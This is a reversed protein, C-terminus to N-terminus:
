EAEWVKELYRISIWILFSDFFKHKLWSFITAMVYIYIAVIVRRSNNGTVELTFEWVTSINEFSFSVDSFIDRESLACVVKSFLYIGFFWWRYVCLCFLFHYFCFVQCSEKSFPLDLRRKRHIISTNLMAAPTINGTEAM